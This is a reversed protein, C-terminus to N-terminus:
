KAMKSLRVGFKSTSSFTLASFKAEIKQQSVVAKKEVSLKGSAASRTAGAIKTATMVDGSFTYAPESYNWAYIEGGVVPWVNFSVVSVEEGSSVTGSTAYITASNSNEMVFTYPAYDGGIIYMASMAPIWSQALWVYQLGQSADEQIVLDKVFKLNNGDVQALAPASDLFLGDWGRVIVMDDAYDYPEITIDRTLSQDILSEAYNGDVSQQVFTRPSTVRWTGYWSSESSTSAATTFTTTFLNGTALAGTSPDIEYVFVVYTTSPSLDTLQYAQPGQELVSSWPYGYANVLETLYEHYAQLFQVESGFQVYDDYALVDWWYRATPDSPTIDAVAATDTIDYMNIAFECGANVGYQTVYLNVNLNYAECFVSIVGNREQTSNNAALTFALNSTGPNGNLTHVTIWSSSTYAEWPYDSTVLVYFMGGAAESRLSTTELQIDNVDPEVPGMDEYCGTFALAVVSLLLLFKKM